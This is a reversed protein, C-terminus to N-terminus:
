LPVKSVPFMEAKREEANRTWHAFGFARVLAAVESAVGEAKKGGKGKKARERLLKLAAGGRGMGLEHQALTLAYEDREDEDLDAAGTVWQKMAGVALAFESPPAGEEPPTTLEIPESEARSQRLAAAKAFLALRLSKRREAMEKAEDKAAQSKDEEDHAVGFYQALKPVDIPGDPALLADAAACVETARWAAATKSEKLEEAPPATRRFALVELLLPLHARHEALMLTALKNYRAASANSSRLASLRGLQADRIAERMAKDDEEAAKAAAEEEGGKEKDKEDTKAKADGKTPAEEEKAPIPAPPPEYVLRHSTPEVEKDLKLSGVLVDGGSVWSPPKDTPAAVYLATQGGRKLWADSVKASGDHGASSAAGRSSVVALELPKPLPLVLLLPLDKLATLQAPQPHRLLVRLVYSGGKLNVPEADHILGGYALIEGTSGHDLRWLMSDVPSDYLQYHLSALRPLVSQTAGEDAAVDFKYTLIMQHIQTGLAQPDAALQADSPPMVDLEASAPSIPASSPRVARHVDVLSAKPRLREPRLPAGVEIRAHGDAPGIRLVRSDCGATPLARGRAAFSHFEVNTTFECPSPNSLWAIQFALELTSGGRVPVTVTQEGHERLLLYEESGAEANPQDRRAGVVAQLIVTHPGKPTAGAVLRVIAYEATAPTAIFRRHPAGPVLALPFSLGADPGSDGKDAKCTTGLSYAPAEAVAHPVVVTVPLSFLPGRAPDTADLAVVSAFHVGPKLQALDLRVTFMQGGREAGSTLLMSAPTTLWGASCSLALDLEISILDALEAESRVAAHEFKPQVHVGIHLPGALEAADRLYIGRADARSPVKVAFELAQGPKGHHAQAYVVARPANILGRGQAWPDSTEVPVASNELARRLEIPGLTLGSQKLASLVCAAVGCANPSSMSTGHYQAKGQLTHRPVPAIAGGPACLSPLDGDWTPGRSSFAYSTSPVADPLMSYQHEMMASSIYAGVTICASTGGPAGITSLGPGDNGASTFIAMGWKRVADSFAAHVRGGEPEYFPEGFSLNALQCGAAKAAILARVLGTGTESSYLRGDGIKCALIQAGPAVGNREPAEAFHAAAIGAVHTGHSGSDTVISVLDGEAYVQVCFSLATGFGLDGAQQAVRYPHMPTSRSLDGDPEARVDVLVTWTGSRDRWVVVDLLPGADAYGDNLDKLQELVVEADKKAPSGAAVGDLKRRTATVAAHQHAAFAEKRERKVRKLVSLPLLSYLRVAGVRFEKHDKAAPHLQLKRGSLGIITGAEDRAAVKSTDVDGGGTCDLFDVYKPLGTSTTLLGAATLDCGTDLVAIITGRGDAAGDTQSLLEDIGTESKPLHSM